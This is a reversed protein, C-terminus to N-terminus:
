SWNRFSWWAPLNASRHRSKADFHEHLLPDAFDSRRLFDSRDRQAYQRSRAGFAQLWLGVDLRESERFLVSEKNFQDVAWRVAM